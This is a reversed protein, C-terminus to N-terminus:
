FMWEDGFLSKDDDANHQTGPYAFLVHPEQALVHGLSFLSEFNIM